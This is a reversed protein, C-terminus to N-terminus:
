LGADPDNRNPHKELYAALDGLLDRSLPVDRTRRATKPTGFQRGGKVRQVTRRVGVHRRLFNIDRIRLAALEGARLGSFAAFRVILGYPAAGDLESAVAEVQEPELFGPGSHVRRPKDVVACPNAPIIKHKVAHAFVKSLAILRTHVTAPAFPRGTHESVKSEMDRLWREADM